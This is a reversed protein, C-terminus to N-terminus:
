LKGGIVPQATLDYAVNHEKLSYMTLALPLGCIQDLLKLYVGMFKEGHRESNGEISATLAHAIEHVVVWTPTNVETFRLTLRTADARAKRVNKPMRSVKPPYLLGLKMWVGDVFTQLNDGHVTAVVRPNVVKHEWDYVRQKQADRKM